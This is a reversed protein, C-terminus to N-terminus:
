NGRMEKVSQIKKSKETTTEQLTETKNLRNVRM